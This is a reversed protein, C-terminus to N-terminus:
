VYDILEDIVQQVYAERTESSMGEVKSKEVQLKAFLQDLTMKSADDEPALLGQTMLDIKSEKNNVYDNETFEMNTWEHTDLVEKVRDKGLKDHFENTGSENCNVFEFGFLIVEDEMAEVESKEIGKESTGAVVTFGEWDGLLEKIKSIVELSQQLTDPLTHDMNFTFIVGDLAERLEEYEDNAFETYWTQLHQISEEPPCGREEPYEELLLNLNIKFYKTILDSNYILGSHSNSLITSTDLDGTIYQALRIKGSNPLGLILVNHPIM